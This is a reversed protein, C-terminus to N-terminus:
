NHMTEAVAPAKWDLRQQKSIMVEKSLTRRQLKHQEKDKREWKKSEKDEINRIHVNKSKNMSSKKTMSHNGGISTKKKVSVHEVYGKHLKM